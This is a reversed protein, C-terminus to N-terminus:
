GTSFMSYHTILLHQFGTYITFIFSYTRKKLITIDKINSHIELGALKEYVRKGCGTCLVLIM